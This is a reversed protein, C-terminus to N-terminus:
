PFGMCAPVCVITLVVHHLLTHRHAWRHNLVDGVGGAERVADQAPKHHFVFNALVQLLGIKHAVILALPVGDPAAAAAPTRANPPPPPYQRLGTVLIDVLGLKLLLDRTPTTEEADGHTLAHSSSAGVSKSGEGGDALLHNSLIGLWNIQQLGAPRDKLKSLQAICLRQVSPCVISPDAESLDRYLELVQVIRFTHVNAFEANGSGVASGGIAAPIESDVELTQLVRALALPGSRLVECLVDRAWGPNAHAHSYLVPGQQSVSSEDEDDDTDDSDSSSSSDEDDGTATIETLLFELMGRNSTLKSLRSSVTSALSGSQPQSEASEPGVVEEQDCVCKLICLSLFEGLRGDADRAAARPLDPFSPELFSDWLVSQNALHGTVCNAFFQVIARLALLRADGAPFKEATSWCAADSVGSLIFHLLAGVTHLVKLDFCADQNAESQVCMNRLVRVPVTVRELVKAAELGDKGSLGTAFQLVAQSADRVAEYAASGSNRFEADKSPELLGRMTESLEPESLKPVFLGTAAAMEARRGIDTRQFRLQYFM